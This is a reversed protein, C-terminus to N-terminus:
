QLLAGHVEEATANGNFALTYIGGAGLVNILDPASAGLRLSAQSMNLDDWLVRGFIKSRDVGDIVEVIGSM